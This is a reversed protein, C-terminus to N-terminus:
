MIMITLFTLIIFGLLFYPAKNNKIVWEELM